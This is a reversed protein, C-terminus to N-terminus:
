TELFEVSRTVVPSVFPASYIADTGMGIVGLQGPTFMLTLAAAFAAWTTGAIAYAIVFVLLVNAAAPFVAALLGPHPRPGFM